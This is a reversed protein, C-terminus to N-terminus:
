EQDTRACKPFLFALVHFVNAWLKKLKLGYRGVRDRALPVIDVTKNCQPSLKYCVQCNNRQKQQCVSMKPNQFSLLNARYKKFLFGCLFKIGM